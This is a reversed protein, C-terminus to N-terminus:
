MSRPTHKYTAIRKLKPIWAERYAYCANLNKVIGDEILIEERIGQGTSLINFVMKRMSMCLQFFQCHNKLAEINEILAGEEEVMSKEGEQYTEGLGM